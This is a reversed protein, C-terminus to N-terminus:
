PFFVSAWQREGGGGGKVVIDAERKDFLKPEMLLSASTPSFFNPFRACFDVHKM